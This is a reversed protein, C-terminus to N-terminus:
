FGEEDDGASRASAWGAKGSLAPAGWGNDGSAAKTGGFNKAYGQKGRAPIKIGHNM